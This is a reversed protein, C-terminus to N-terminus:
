RLFKGGLFTIFGGIISAITMGMWFGGKSKNALELLCKVDKALDKVETQLADVQAELRGFDRADIDSM